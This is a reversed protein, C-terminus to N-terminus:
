CSIGSAGETRVALRSGRAGKPFRALVNQSISLALPENHSDMAAQATQEHILWVAHLSDTPPNAAGSLAAAPACIPDLRAWRVRGWERETQNLKRAYKRLITSGYRAM